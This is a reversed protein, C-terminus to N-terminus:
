LEGPLFYGELKLVDGICRHIPFAQEQIFGMNVTVGYEAISYEGYGQNPEVGQAAYGQRTLLYLFEGGGSGVDLIRDGDKLYPSVRQYRNHAVRGARYIHKLKPTFAGKYSVRYDREYYTRVEEESPRPDTWVLGCGNCAVTRLYRGDRDRTSLETVDTGGCLNCPISCSNPGVAKPASVM